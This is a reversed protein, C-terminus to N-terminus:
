RGTPSRRRRASRASPRPGSPKRDDPLESAMTLTSSKAPPVTTCMLAPTAPRIHASMSPLRLSVPGPRVVHHQGQDAGRQQPDAPEAEVGARRDGGAHLGAHRHGHRLDGGRDRRKVQINTSHTARPLGVTRPMQEPATAPRTAM